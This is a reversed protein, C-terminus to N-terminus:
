FVQIDLEKALLPQVQQAFTKFAETNAHFEFAEANVYEEYVIFEAPDETGQYLTYALNGSEARTASILPATLALFENVKDNAVRIRAIVIKKEM